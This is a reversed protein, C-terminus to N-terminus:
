SFCLYLLFVPMSHILNCNTLKKVHVQPPMHLGCTPLQSIPHPLDSFDQLQSDVSTAHTFSTHIIAYCCTIAMGLVLLMHTDLKQWPEVKDRYILPQSTVHCPTQQYDIALTRYM